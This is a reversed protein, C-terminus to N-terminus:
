KPTSKKLERQALEEWSDNLEGYVAFLESSGVKSFHPRLEFSGRLTLDLIKYTEPDDPDSTPEKGEGTLSIISQIMGDMKQISKQADSYMSAEVGALGKGEDMSIALKVKESYSDVRKKFKKIYDPM